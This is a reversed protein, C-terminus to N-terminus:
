IAGQQIPLQKGALFDQVTLGGTHQMHAMERFRKWRGAWELGVEEGIEGCRTWLAADNWPIKGHVIPAFDFAVRYQHMSCGPKANTVVKGPRTRGLAYLAAQESAPRYTCTLIVDIGKVECGRIFDRCMARVTPHLDDISRSM